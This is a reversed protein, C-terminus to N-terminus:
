EAPMAAIQEASPPEVDGTVGGGIAGAELQDVLESGANALGAEYKQIKGSLWNFLMVSPIAVMLGYGTVYLAEGILPGITSLGGGGDQGIVKFAGLIGFVTGLLGVFPATSGTTALVALGKNLSMSLNEGTRELNRKTFEAARDRGMGLALNEEFTKIGEYIFRALHSRKAAGEAIGMAAIADGREMPESVEQAFTKSRRKSMFLMLLRDVTVTIGWLGQITLVVIASKVIPNMKHWMEFIDLEM